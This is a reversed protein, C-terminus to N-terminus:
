GVSTRNGETNILVSEMWQKAGETTEFVRLEIGLDASRKIMRQYYVERAPEKFGITGIRKLGCRVAEPLVTTMFWQQDNDSVVGQLRLDAIWAPTNYTRLTQLVTEFVERYERSSIARKWFIVTNNINADYCLKAAENEFFVQDKINDPNPLLIKFISGVNLESEVEIKGGLVELQTKVLYLGLGKGAVHTHFRKYLKFINERQRNLDIGLGNDKVQLVVGEPIKYSSVEVHLPRDPSQYKIANSVLNYFISQIMARISYVHLEEFHAELQYGPKVYDHLLSYCKMWEDNLLIKERVKFLENRSDIILNLDKLVGDLDLTSQHLLKILNEKEQGNDNMGILNMLGLLRAVPGRLNHSVTFSFQLLENNHKVLEENTNILDQSKREVESQLHDNLKHIIQNSEALEEAQAQIEEKQEAMQVNLMHLAENAEILEESQAQIEENREAIDLNLKLTRRYTRYYFFGLLSGLVVVVSIALFYQKQMEISAQQTAIQKDRERMEYSQQLLMVKGALGSNYISDRLSNYASAYRLAEEYKKQTSLLESKGRYTQLLIERAQLVHALSEAENFRFEAESPRQMKLLLAGIMQNSWAIGYSNNLSDDIGLSYLQCELAKEFDGDEEYQLGVNSVTSAIGRADKIRKRIALAADLYQRAEKAMKKETHLIGLLNNATGALAEYNGAESKELALKGFEISKDVQELFYYAYGIELLANCELKTQKQQVALQLADFLFQQSAEYNGKENYVGGVDILLQIYAATPTNHAFQEQIGALLRLAEAYDDAYLLKVIRNAKITDLKVSGQAYLALCGVSLLTSFLIRLTQYM